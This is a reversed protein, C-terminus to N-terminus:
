AKAVVLHHYIPTPVDGSVSSRRALFIYVRTDGYPSSQIADAISQITTRTASDRVRYLRTGVGPPSNAGYSLSYVTM